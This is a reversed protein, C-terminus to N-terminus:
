NTQRQFLESCALPMAASYLSVCVSYCYSTHDRNTYTVAAIQHGLDQFFASAEDRGGCARFLICLRCHGISPRNVAKISNIMIIKKNKNNMIQRLNKYSRSSTELLNNRINIIWTYVNCVCMRRITFKL